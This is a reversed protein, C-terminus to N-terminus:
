SVGGRDEIAKQLGGGTGKAIDRLFRFADLLNSKGSANPGVIFQRERLPVDVERFNRWNKLKVRSIMM